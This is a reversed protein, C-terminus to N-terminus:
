NKKPMGFLLNFGNWDEGELEAGVVDAIRAMQSAPLGTLDGTINVTARMLGRDMEGQSAQKAFKILDPFVRVGAPGSYSRSEGFIAEAAPAVERLYIFQSLLLNAEDKLWRMPFEEALEDADDPDKLGDIATRLMSELTQQVVFIMALNMLREMGKQTTWFTVGANLMTGFFSYFVNFVNKRREMQSLDSLSGSGQAMVVERDAREVAYKELAEGAIGKKKGEAEYKAYSGLWTPIDVCFVQAYVIPLFSARAVADRANVLASNGYVKQVEGLEKFRTVLRHQMMPSMEFCRRTAERPSKAYEITGRAIWKAGVVAVSQTMGIPQLAATQLSFGLGAVGVNKRIADEWKNVPIERGQTAVDRLWKHLERVAEAGYWRRIADNTRTGFGIIKNTDILVERWCIDNIVDNLAQYGALTTLSIPNGTIGQREMSRGTKTTRQGKAKGAGADINESDTGEWSNGKTKDYAIPYYGGKLTVTKGDKSQLTVPEAKVMPLYANHTREELAVLDDGLSGVVDWVKQIANLEDATFARGVAALVAGRTWPSKGRGRYDTYKDSGALLREFNESSGINFAMAVLNAMSFSGDLEEYYTTKSERLAPMLPKLAEMFANCKETKLAQQRDRAADIRKGVAEYFAGFRSGEFMQWLTHFRLHAYMFERLNSRVKAAFSRKENDNQPKERVGREEANKNIADATKKDLEIVDVKKGDVVMSYRERAMAQFDSVFRMFDRAEEVTMVAFPKGELVTDPIEPMGSVGFVNQQDKYFAALDRRAPIANEIVGANQLIGQLQELWELQMSGYKKKGDFRDKAVKVFAEARDLFAQAADALRMQILQKRKADAALDTRTGVTRRVYGEHKGEDKQRELSWESLHKEAREAEKQADKRMEKITKKERLKRVTYRSLLAEAIINYTGIGIPKTSGSLLQVELAVIKASTESFVAADASDRISETTALDPREYALREEVSEAVAVEPKVGGFPDRTVDGVLESFSQYGFKYATDFPDLTPAIQQGTLILRGEAKKGSVVLGRKRLAKIDSDAVGALALAEETFGPFVKKKRGGEEIFAANKELFEDFAVRREGYAKEIAEKTFRKRLEAAERELSKTTSERLRNLYGVAVKGRQLFKEVLAEDLDRMLVRIALRVDEENLETDTGLSELRMYLHRRAQAEQTQEYAVFIADFMERVEPSIDSGPVATLARYVGKLWRMFQRFVGVLEKTPAKGEMLYQEYTRAFKEEMARRDPISKSLFDKADKAGLWKAVRDTQLIFNKEAASLSASDRAALSTAIRFRTHMFWHGTEHLLTSRDKTAGLVITNFDPVFAGKADQNLRNEESFAAKARDTEPRIRLGGEAESAKEVAVDGDTLVARVGYDEWVQQPLVGLDKAISAVHSMTLAVAANRYAKAETPMATEVEAKYAKAVAKLSARFDDSVTSGAVSAAKVKDIAAVADNAQEATPEGNASTAAYLDAQANKDASVRAYEVIDLDISGGTKVAEDIEQARSPLAERIATLAPSESGDEMSALSSVDVTLTRAEPADQFLADTLVSLVNPDSLAKSEAIKEMARETLDQRAAARKATVVAENRAGYTAIAVEAGVTGFEGLAELAVDVPDIEGRGVIQGAAEGAAGLASQVVTQAALNTLAHRYVNANYREYARAFSPMAERTSAGLRKPIMKGAVGMSLADFAAVPSAYANAGSQAEDFTNSKLFNMVAVPNTTDVGAKEMNQALESTQSIAFSGLGATLAAPIATAGGAAISAAGSLALAPANSALSSVTVDGMVSGLSDWLAKAAASVGGEDYAQSIPNVPSLENLAKSIVQSRAFRQAANWLYGEVEKERKTDGAKKAEMLWGRFRQMDSGYSMQGVTLAGKAAARRTIGPLGTDKMDGAIGYIMKEFGAIINEEGQTAARFVPDMSQQKFADSTDKFPKDQKYQDRMADTVSQTPVDYERALAFTDLASQQDMTPKQFQTPTVSMFDLEGM